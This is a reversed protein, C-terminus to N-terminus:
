LFHTKFDTNEALGPSSPLPLTPSAIDVNSQMIKGDATKALM